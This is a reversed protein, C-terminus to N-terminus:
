TETLGKETLVKFEDWTLKEGRKMKELAKKELEQMLETQRKTKKMAEESKAQSLLARIQAILLMCKQNLKQM